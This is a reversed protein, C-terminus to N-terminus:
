PASAQLRGSGRNLTMPCDVTPADFLEVAGDDWVVRLEDIETAEGLGFHARPEHSCLYSQGPLLHRVWSRKGASVTIVAGFADRRLRPDYARVKLWHGRRPAVNRYLLAPGAVATVLLDLAGDDDFDLFALGRYVGLPGCFPENAASIDLLRGAGDGALLQNREAFRSWHPQEDGSAARQSVRGHVIAADLWGDLDFDATVVGFGTGRM